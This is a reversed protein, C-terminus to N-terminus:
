PAPPNNFGARWSDDGSVFCPISVIRSSIKPKTIRLQRSMDKAKHAKITDLGPKIDNQRSLFSRMLLPLGYAIIVLMGLFSYGSPHTHRSISIRLLHDSGDLTVRTVAGLLNSIDSPM